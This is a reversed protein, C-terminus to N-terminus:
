CRLPKQKTKQCLAITLAFSIDQKRESFIIENFHYKLDEWVEQTDGSYIKM